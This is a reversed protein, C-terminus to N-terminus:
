HKTAGNKEDTLYTYWCIIAYTCLVKDSVRAALHRKFNLFKPNLLTSPYMEIIYCGLPIQPLRKHGFVNINIVPILSYGTLEPGM